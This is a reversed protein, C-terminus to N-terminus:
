ERRHFRKMFEAGYEREAESINHRACLLRLNDPSNAGGKAFPIIHDIQLNWDSDCRKGDDGVFTCRGGDRVFVKDRISQPIHRTKEPDRKKEGAKKVVRPEPAAQGAQGHRSRGATQQKEAENLKIEAGTKRPVSKKKREAIQKKRENRKKTRIEPDHRDIYEDMVTDFLM